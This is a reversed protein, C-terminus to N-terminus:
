RTGRQGQHRGPSLKHESPGLVLWAEGALADGGITIQAM